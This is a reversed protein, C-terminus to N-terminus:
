DRVEVWFWGRLDGDNFGTAEDNPYHEALTERVNAALSDAPGHCALCQAKLRIPLLAAHHGDALDLFQPEEVRQEVLPKAWDPPQNEPNRLKWSTRGIRVGMAEGVEAAIKPAEERCVPIAAPPGGQAMAAMLRTSLRQFLEDRAATARQQPTPPAALSANEAEAANKGTDAAPKPGGCGVAFVCLLLGFAGLRPTTNKM